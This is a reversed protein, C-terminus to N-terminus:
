LPSIYKVLTDNLAKTREDLKHYHYLDKTSKELDRRLSVVVIQLRKYHAEREDLQISLSGNFISAEKQQGNLDVITKRM